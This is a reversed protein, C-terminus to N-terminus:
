SEKLLSIPRVEIGRTKGGVYSRLVLAPCINECVGCGNCKTPDILPRNDEDLTIAKYPCANYCLTCAGLNLAICVNTLVAVGIKVTQKDFPELAGTPCVEVCKNCFDCSGIHFKMLPTRAQLFGEEISAIGIASTHCVSRCRDCKICKALFLNEDQGGPPRLLAQHEKAKGVTGLGVMLAVGVGASIFERRSFKGKNNNSQNEM